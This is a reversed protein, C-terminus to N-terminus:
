IVHILSNDPYNLRVNTMFTYFDIIAWIYFFQTHITSAPSHISRNQECGAGLPIVLGAPSPASPPSSSLSWSTSSRTWTQAKGTRRGTTWISRAPPHCPGAMCVAVAGSIGALSVGWVPPLPPPLPPLTSHPDNLPTLPPTPRPEPTTTSFQGSNRSQSSEFNNQQSFTSIQPGGPAVLTPPGSRGSRGPDSPHTTDGSAPDGPRGSGLSTKTEAGGAKVNM